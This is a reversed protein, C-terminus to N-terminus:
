VVLTIMNEAVAEVEMRRDRRGIARAEKEPWGVDTFCSGFLTYLSEPGRKTSDRAPLPVFPVEQFPVFVVMEIIGVLVPAMNGILEPVPEGEISPPSAGMGPYSCLTKVM